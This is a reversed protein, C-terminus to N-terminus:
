SNVGWDTGPESPILADADAALAFESPKSMLPPLSPPRVAHRQELRMVRQELGLSEYARVFRDFSIRRPRVASNVVAGAGPFVSKGVTANPTRLLPVFLRM